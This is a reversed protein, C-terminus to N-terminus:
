RDLEAPVYPGFHAVLLSLSEGLDRTAELREFRLGLDHCSAVIRRAIRADREELNRGAREPDSTRRELRDGPADRHRRALLAERREPIPVLFIAQRPSRIVPAVCWPLAGPGEAIIPRDAPLELLDDIVYRWRATWVAIMRDFLAEPSPGLWRADMSLDDWGAPVGGPRLRHDDAGRQDLSYIRLRYTRALERALTTKGAGPGGGIWLIHSLQERVDDM